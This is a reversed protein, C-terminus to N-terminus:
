RGNDHGARRRDKVVDIVLPQADNAALAATQPNLLAEALSRARQGAADNARRDAGAELLARVLRDRTNGASTYIRAADGAVRARHADILGMTAKRAGWDLGALTTGWFTAPMLNRNLGGVSSPEPFEHKAAERAATRSNGVIENARSAMAAEADLRRLMAEAAEPSQTVM